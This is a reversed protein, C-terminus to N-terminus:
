VEYIEIGEKEALWRAPRCYKEDWKLMQSKAICVDRDEFQFVVALGSPTERVVGDHVLIPYDDSM